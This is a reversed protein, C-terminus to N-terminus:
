KNFQKELYIKGLDATWQMEYIKIWKDLFSRRCRQNVLGVKALNPLDCPCRFLRRGGPRPEQLLLLTVLLKEAQLLAPKEPTVTKNNRQFHKARPFDGTRM